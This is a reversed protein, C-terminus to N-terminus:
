RLVINQVFDHFIDDSCVIFIQSLFSQFQIQRFSQNIQISVDCSSTKIIKIAEIHLWIFLNYIFICVTIWFYYLGGCAFFFIFDINNNAQLIWWFRLCNLRFHHVYQVNTCSPPRRFRLHLIYMFHAHVHPHPSPTLFDWIYVIQYMYM